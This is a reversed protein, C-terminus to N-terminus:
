AKKLVEAKALLAQKQAAKVIKGTLPVDEYFEHLIQKLLIIELLNDQEKELPAKYDEKLAKILSELTQQGRHTKSYEENYAELAEKAYSEARMAEREAYTPNEPDDPVVFPKFPLDGGASAGGRM